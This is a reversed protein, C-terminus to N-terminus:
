LIGEAGESCFRQFFPDSFDISTSAKEKKPKPEQSSKIKEVHTEISRMMTRRYKLSEETRLPKPKAGRYDVGTKEPADHWDVTGRFGFAGKSSDGSIDANGGLLVGFKVDVKGKSLESVLEKIMKQTAGSAVWDDLFLMTPNPSKTLAEKVLPRLTELNEERSLNKTLKRFRLTGDTTPLRGNLKTYLMHVALGIFRAGRDCAVIMEPKLENIYDVIPLVAESINTAGIMGEFDFGKKFGKITQSSIYSKLGVAIGNYGISISKIIKNNYKQNYQFYNKTKNEYKM